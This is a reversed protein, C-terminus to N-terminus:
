EGIAIRQSQDIHRHEHPQKQLEWSIAPGRDQHDGRLQCCPEDELEPKAQAKGAVPVVTGEHQEEQETDVGDREETEMDEVRYRRSPCGRDVLHEFAHEHEIELPADDIGVGRRLPGQPFWGWAQSPARRALEQRFAAKGRRCRSLLHRYPGLQAESFSRLPSVVGQLCSRQFVPLAAVESLHKQEVIHGNWSPM